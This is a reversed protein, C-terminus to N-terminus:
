EPNFQLTKLIFSWHCVLAGGAEYGEKSCLAAILAPSLVQGPLLLEEYFDERWEPL